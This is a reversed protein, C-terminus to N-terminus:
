KAVGGRWWRSIVRSPFVHSGGLGEWPAFKKFLIVVLNGNAHIKTASCTSPDGTLLLLSSSGRRMEWSLKEVSIGVFVSQCRIRGKLWWSWSLSSSWPLPDVVPPEISACDVKRGVIFATGAALARASLLRFPSSRAFNM